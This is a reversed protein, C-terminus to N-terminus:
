FEYTLFLATSLQNRSGEVDVLPSHAADGILTRYALIGSIAWRPNLVFNVALSLGADKMGGSRERPNRGSVLAQERTVGFYAQTYEDNAWTATAKIMGGWRPSLVASYGIAAEARLGDHRDAVDQRANLEFSLPGVEYEMFLGAELGGGIKGLGRLAPNEDDRGGDYHVLAGFSFNEALWSGSLEVIDIGLMPGHLFIADRYRIGIPPMFEAEYDDSGDYDPRYMVGSGLTIKWADDPAPQQEAAAAPQQQAPVPPPAALAAWGSLLIVATPIRTNRPM